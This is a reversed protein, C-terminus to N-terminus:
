LLVVAAKKASDGCYVNTKYGNEAFQGQKAAITIEPTAFQFRISRSFNADFKVTRPSM